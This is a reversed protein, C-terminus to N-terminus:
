ATEAVSGELLVVQLVDDDFVSPEFPIETNDLRM